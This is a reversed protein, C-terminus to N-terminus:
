REFKTIVGELQFEPRESRRKKWYRMLSLSVWYLTSKDGKSALKSKGMDVM